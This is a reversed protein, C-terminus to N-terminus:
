GKSMKIFLLQISTFLRMDLSLNSFNLSISFTQIKVMNNYNIVLQGYVTSTIQYPLTDVM